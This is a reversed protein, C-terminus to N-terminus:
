GYVRTVQNRVQIGIVKIPHLDDDTVEFLAISATLYRDVVDDLPDAEHNQLM